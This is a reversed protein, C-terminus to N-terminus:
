VHFPLEKNMAIELAQKPKLGMERAIRFLALHIQDESSIQAYYCDIPSKISRQTIFQADYSSMGPVDFLNTTRGDNTPEQQKGSEDVYAVLTDNLVLEPFLLSVEPDSVINGALCSPSGCYHFYKNLNFEDPDLRATMEFAAALQTANFVSKTTM